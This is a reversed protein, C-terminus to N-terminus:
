NHLLAKGIPMRFMRENMGLIWNANAGYNVCAKRIHEIRFHQSGCKINRVNQKDLDIIDLFEQTFRIVNRQKLEDILQFMREDSIYLKSKKPSRLLTNM